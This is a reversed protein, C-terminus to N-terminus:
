PRAPTSRPRAPAPRRAASGPPRRAPRSTRRAARRPRASRATSSGSASGTRPGPGPGPRPCCPPPWARRSSGASRSGSRRAPGRRRAARPRTGPGAPDLAAHDALPQDVVRQDALDHEGPRGLDALLDHAAARGLDLPERQLQAALARVDHEGVRVQLLGRGGRRRRDEVVGPLVAAGPGPDQDLARHEVPEHLQELRGDVRDPDAVRGGLVGHHARQDGGRVALM